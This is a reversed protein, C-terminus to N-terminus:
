GAAMAVSRHSFLFLETCKGCNCCFDHDEPHEVHGCSHCIFCGDMHPIMQLFSQSDVCYRCRVLEPM